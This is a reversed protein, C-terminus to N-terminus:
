DRRGSKCLNTLTLKEIGYFACLVTYLQANDGM